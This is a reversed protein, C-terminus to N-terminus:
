VIEKRPEFESRDIDITRAVVLRGVLPSNSSKLPVERNGPDRLAMFARPTEIM